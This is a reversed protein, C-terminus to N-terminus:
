PITFWVKMLSRASLSARVANPQASPIHQVVAKCRADILTVHSQSGAAVVHADMALCVLEASHDMKAQRAM